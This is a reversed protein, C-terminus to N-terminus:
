SDNTDETPGPNTRGSGPVSRVCLYRQTALPHEAPEVGTIAWRSGGILLSQGVRLDCDTFRVEDVSDPKRLVIEYLSMPPIGTLTTAKQRLHYAAM